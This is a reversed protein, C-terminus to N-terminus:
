TQYDIPEYTVNPWHPERMTQWRRYARLRWDLLWEPEAKKASILRIVAESLGPPITDAEVDTVFGYPYERNVLTDISSSM